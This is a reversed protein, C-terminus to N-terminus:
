DGHHSECLVMPNSQGRVDDPAVGLLDIHAHRNPDNELLDFVDPERQELGATRQRRRQRVLALVQLPDSRDTRHCADFLELVVDRHRPMPMDRSPRFNITSGTASLTSAISNATPSAPNVSSSMSPM